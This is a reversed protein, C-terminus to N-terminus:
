LNLWTVSITSIAITFDLHCQLSSLNDVQIGSRLWQWDIIDATISAIMSFQALILLKFLVLERKPNQFVLVSKNILWFRSHQLTRWPSILRYSQGWGLGILDLYQLQLFQGLFLLLSKHPLFEIILKINRIDNIQFM